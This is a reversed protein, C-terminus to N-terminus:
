QTPPTQQGEGGEKNKEWHGHRAQMEDFKRQQTPGLLERIQSNATTHIEMMKSHRDEQSASTDQKVTEMQTKATQLISLVKAQQDSTLKLQRTLMQTRREPDPAGHHEWGGNGHAAPPNENSPQPNDQAVALMSGLSIAGAALMILFRQKLM